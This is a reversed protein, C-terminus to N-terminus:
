QSFKLAELFGQILAWNVAVAYILLLALLLYLIRVPKKTLYRFLAKLPKKIIAGFVMGFAKIIFQLLKLLAGLAKDLLSPGGKGAVQKGNAPERAKLPPAKEPRYDAPSRKAAPPTKKAESLAPPPVARPKPNGTEQKSYKAILSADTSKRLVEDPVVEMTTAPAFVRIERAPTQNGEDDLTSLMATGPPMSKLTELVANQTQSQGDGSGPFSKALARLRANGKETMPKQAFIIKTSLQGLIEDPIDGVDQTVFFVSVGKSRIQRLMTVMLDRLSRNADKFLYHAEDFFIVFEPRAVDGVEPLRDFLMQLLFAPAMSVAMDRRADSLNLVNLGLLDEIKISPKGFMKSLGSEELALVKRQIVSISSPSIGRQGTSVLEDLVDLLQGASDLPIGKKRAYSFAISLHSEQTPNLALMRSILVSGAAMISFRMMAFRGSVSWYDTEFAQPEFPALPNREIWRKEAESPGKADHVFAPACFGSADGKVDSVFVNIGADALQEAMVQMVRSKGSGTSGAIIGHRTLFRLPLDVRKGGSEGLAIIANEQEGAM